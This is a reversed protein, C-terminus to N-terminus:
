IKHTDSAYFGPLLLRVLSDLRMKWRVNDVDYRLHMQEPGRKMTLDKTTGLVTVLRSQRTTKSAPM